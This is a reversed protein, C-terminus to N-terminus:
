LQYIYMHTNINVQLHESMKRLGNAGRSIYVEVHLNAENGPERGKRM